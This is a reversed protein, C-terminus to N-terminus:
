SNNIIFWGVTDTDGNHNSTITFSGASKASVAVYGNPHNLTQKSVMIISNATVLSNSVTVTGPNAGDLVATGAQQNSGTTFLVENTFRTRANIQLTQNATTTDMKGWMLSGSRDANLSGYNGNGIYFNGSGTENYGAYAGIAINSSGSINQNLAQRGIGVNNDSTTQNKLAEFGIGVNANGDVLGALTANGIAVNLTGTTNSDLTYSGIAMNRDGSINQQLANDGLAINDTGSTNLQLANTGIAVNGGSVANQLVNVGLGTNNSGSGRTVSLGNLSISASVILSGTIRQTGNFSSNGIVSLSGTMTTSGSVNLTGEIFTNSGSDILFGTKRATSTGTGVVFINEGTLARTGDQANYRGTFLAGAPEPFVSSGTVILGRGLISNSNFANNTRSLDIKVINSTGFIINDSYSSATGANEAIISNIQGGVNLRNMALSGTGPVGTFSNNTITFGSDNINCNAM